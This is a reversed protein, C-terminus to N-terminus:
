RTMEDFLQARAFTWERKVTRASIGLAAATEEVSLGTYFRLRVVAAMRADQKEMRRLAADLALIQEPDDNAALDAVGGLTLSLRRPAKGGSGGRKDRSRARAHEVLIRRMAEAAAGFFHGADDWTVDPRASLRLFAEHVLETAELSHDRREGRLRHAALRRLESYLEQLLREGSRAESIPVLNLEDDSSDPTLDTM